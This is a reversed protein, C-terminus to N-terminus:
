LSLNRLTSESNTSNCRSFGWPERLVITVANTMLGSCFVCNGYKKGTWNIFKLFEGTSCGVDCVTTNFNVFTNDVDVFLIKKDM